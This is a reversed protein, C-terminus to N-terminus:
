RKHVEAVPDHATYCIAMSFITERPLTSQVQNNERPYKPRAQSRTSSSRMCSSLVSEAELSSKAVDYTISKLTMFWAHACRPKDDTSLLLKRYFLERSRTNSWQGGYSPLTKSVYVLTGPVPIM